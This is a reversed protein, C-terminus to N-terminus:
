SGTTSGTSYDKWQVWDTKGWANSSPSFHKVFLPHYKLAFTLNSWLNRKHIRKSCSRTSRKQMLCIRTTCITCAVLRVAAMHKAAVVRVICLASTNPQINKEKQPQNRLRHRLKQPKRRKKKRAKKAKGEVLGFALYWCCSVSALGFQFRTWISKKLNCLMILCARLPDFNAIFPSHHVITVWLIM